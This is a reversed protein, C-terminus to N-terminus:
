DADGSEELFDAYLESIPRPRLEGRMALNEALFRDAITRGEHERLLRKIARTGAPPNEAIQRALDVAADLLSSSDVVRNLLGIQHAEEAEVDRATMLLESALGRGVITPLTWTANAGGHADATFKFVTKPCGIRIDAGTAIIAGVGYTIGNLAAILPVPTTAAHWIWPERRELGALLEEESWEAMERVDYGASFARDGAGTLVVCRVDADSELETLADDLEEQLSMTVANLQEPRNLTLVAVGPELFERLLQASAM